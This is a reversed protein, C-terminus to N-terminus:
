GPLAKRQTGDKRENNRLAIGRYCVGNSTFRAGGHREVEKAFNRMNLVPQGADAAWMEYAARLDKFRVYAPPEAPICCDTFFGGIVDQEKRYSETADAVAEATGLGNQQWELCGRVAWALIGEAEARLKEGLKLDQHEVDFTQTFPV